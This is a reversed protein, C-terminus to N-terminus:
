LGFGLSRPRLPGFLGLPRGDRPERDIVQRREGPFEVVLQDGVVALADPRNTQPPRLEPMEAFLPSSLQQSLQPNGYRAEGPGASEGTEVAPAELIRQGIRPGCDAGRGTLPGRFPCM